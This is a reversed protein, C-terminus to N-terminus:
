SSKGNMAGQKEFEIQADLMSLYNRKHAYHYRILMRGVVLLAGAGLFLYMVSVTAASLLEMCYQTPM